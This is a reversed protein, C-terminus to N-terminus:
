PATSLNQRFEKPTTGHAHKFARNFPSLSNFGNNMAITLIPIHSNEPNSFAQKIRDIRYANIYTSFNTHGLTKNIFGRLRYESVGLRKALSEISLNNELFCEKEVVETNLRNLLDLDRSDLSAKSETKIVDFSFVNEDTRCLWYSVCIIAPWISVVNITAQYQSFLMSGLVTASFASFASMMVLYVRSRRRAEILDDTRGILAAMVMHVIILINLGNVLLAWWSPLSNIFDFQVMREMLLSGSFVMAFAVHFYSLKFNKEFLSLALLWIFVMQFPDLLRFLLRFYHPLNFLEPTFGLFHSAISINALLLYIASNSFSQRTDRLILTSIFLLLGLGSFRLFADIIIM